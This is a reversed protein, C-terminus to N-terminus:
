PPSELALGLESGLVGPQKVTLGPAVALQQTGFTIGAVGMNGGAWDLVSTAAHASMRRANICSSFSMVAAHSVAARCSVPAIGLVTLTLGRQFGQEHLM